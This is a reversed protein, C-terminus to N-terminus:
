SNKENEENRIGENEVLELLNKKLIMKGKVFDCTKILSSQEFM